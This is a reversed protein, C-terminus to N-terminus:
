IFFIRTKRANAEADVSDACVSTVTVISGLWAACITRTATGKGSEMGFVLPEVTTAESSIRSGNKAGRVRSM